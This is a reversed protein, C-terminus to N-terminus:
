LLSVAASKTWVVTSPHSAWGAPVSCWSVWVAASQPTLRLGCPKAWRKVGAAASSSRPTNSAATWSTITASGTATPSSARKGATTSISLVV